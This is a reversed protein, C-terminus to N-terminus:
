WFCCCCTWSGEVDEVRADLGKGVGAEDDDGVVVDGVCVPAVAEIEAVRAPFVGLVARQAFDPLGGGGPDRM